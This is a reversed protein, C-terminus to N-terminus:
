VLNAIYAKICVAMRGSEGITGFSNKMTDTGIYKLVLVALDRVCVRYAAWGM